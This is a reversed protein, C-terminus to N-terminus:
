TRRPPPPDHEIVVDDLSAIVPIPAALPSSMVRLPLRAVGAEVGFCAGMCRFQKAPAPKDRDEGTDACHSTIESAGPPQARESAMALPAFLMGCLIALTLLWHRM